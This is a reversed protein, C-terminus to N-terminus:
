SAAERTRKLLQHTFAGVAQRVRRAQKPPLGALLEPLQENLFAFRDADIAALASAPAPAALETTLATSAHHVLDGLRDRETESLHLEPRSLLTDLGVTTWGPASKVQPPAGADIILGAKRRGPVNLWPSTGATCVVLADHAGLESFLTDLSQRAWTTVEWGPVAKLSREMAQGFEGRGLIAIRKVPHEHLVERVLAQVGLSRAGPVEDRRTHILREVHKWVRHLRGDSIGTSRALEFAKLVQRGVAGEGEAVSDLGVAVRLLYHVAASGARVQVLDPAVHPLRSALAGRLLSGAWEPQDSTIIWETRSCTTVCAAGSVYGAQRLSAIPELDNALAAFQSRVVTNAARWSVGVVALPPSM